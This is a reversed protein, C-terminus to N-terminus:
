RSARGSGEEASLININTEDLGRSLSTVSQDGVVEIETRVSVIPRWRRERRTLYSHVWDLEFFNVIEEISLGIRFILETRHSSKVM